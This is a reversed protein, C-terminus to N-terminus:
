AIQIVWYRSTDFVTGNMNVALFALVLFLMPLVLLVANIFRTLIESGASHQIKHGVVPTEEITTDHGTNKSLQEGILIIELEYNDKLSEDVERSGQLTTSYSPAPSLPPEFQSRGRDQEDDDSLRSFLSPSRSVTM